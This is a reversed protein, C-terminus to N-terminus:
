TWFLRVGVIEAAANLIFTTQSDDLSITDPDTDHLRVGTDDAHGKIKIATANDSPKAITCAQATTGSSPATITNDGAALTVLQVQAPSANNDAASLEQAGALDGFFELSITRKATAAM